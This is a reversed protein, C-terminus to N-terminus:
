SEQSGQWLNNNQPNRWDFPSTTVQYPNSHGPVNVGSPGLVFTNVRSILTSSTSNMLEHGDAYRGWQFLSGYAHHDNYATAQQAPNFQAHNM